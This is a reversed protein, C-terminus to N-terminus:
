KSPDYNIGIDSLFFLPLQIDAVDNIYAYEGFLEIAAKDYAFAADIDTDFGGLSYVEGAYRIRSTWRGRSKRVGKYRSASDKRRAQNGRNDTATASRLNSRRNNIGNRDRHDTLTFDTILTHMYINKRKGDIKRDSRAYGGGNSSEQLYWRYRSISEYDDIDIVAVRGNAKSGSLEIEVYADAM